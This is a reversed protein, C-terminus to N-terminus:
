VDQRSTLDRSTHKYKKVCPIIRFGGLISAHLIPRSANWTRNRCCVGYPLQFAIDSINKLGYFAWMLIFKLFCECNQPSSCKGALFHLFQNPLAQFLHYQQICHLSACRWASNRYPSVCCKGLFPNNQIIITEIWMVELVTEGRIWALRTCNQFYISSWQKL